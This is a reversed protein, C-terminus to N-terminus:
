ASSAFKHICLCLLLFVIDTDLEASHVSLTEDKTSYKWMLTLYLSFCRSHMASLESGNGGKVRSSHAESRDESYNSNRHGACRRVRKVEVETIDNTMIDAEVVMITSRVWRPSTTACSPVVAIVRRIVPLVRAESPHTLELDKTIKNLSWENAGLDDALDQFIEGM